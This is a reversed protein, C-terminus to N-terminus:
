WTIARLGVFVEDKDFDFLPHNSDSTTHEYRIFPHTGLVEWDRFLLEVHAEYERDRRLVGFVAAPNEFERYTFSGGVTPEVWPTELFTTDVGTELEWNDLDQRHDWNEVILREDLRFVVSGIGFAVADYIEYVHRDLRSGGERQGDIHRYRGGLTNRAPGLATTASLGAGIEAERPLWDDYRYAASLSPVLAVEGIDFQMSISAFASQQDDRGREFDRITLGGTLTTRPDADTLRYNAGFTLGYGYGHSGRADEDLAFTTGGFTVSEATTQGAVNSDLFFEPALFFTLPDPGAIRGILDIVEPALGDTEIGRLLSAARQRDGLIALIASLEIRAVRSDPAFRLIVRYLEAARPLNGARVAERAEILIQRLDIQIRMPAPQDGPDAIQATASHIMATFAIVSLATHLLRAIM